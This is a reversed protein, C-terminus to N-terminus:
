LNNYLTKMINYVKNAWGSDSAYRKNVGSVTPGNYYKGEAIEGGYIETRSSNLYYKVLVRALLDIGESYSSFTKASAYSSGDYAMYGFLNNKNLAINSIGWGSEHIAIAALFVGNLGYEQEAYYFYDANDTFINNVDSSNYQLIKRFQELSLGSPKSLDMDFSLTALLEERTYENESTEEVVINNPNINSLCESLVYGDQVDSLIYSWGNDFVEQVYVSTGKSITALKQSDNNAEQRIALSNSTNYVTDGEKLEYNNKGRGTGIEVVKDISARKINSAVIQEDALENNIYKKVTIVEQVGVIGVQTVHLTGSPLDPNETYRTTYELDIEEWSMEWTENAGVNQQLISDIDVPNQNINLEQNEITEESVAEVENKKFFGFTNIMFIILFLFLIVVLTGLISIKRSNIQM